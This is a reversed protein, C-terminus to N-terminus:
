REKGQFSGSIIFMSVSFHTILICSTEDTHILMKIIDQSSLIIIPLIEAKRTIIKSELLFLHM